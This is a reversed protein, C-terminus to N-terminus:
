VQLWVGTIKGLIPVGLLRSNLLLVNSDQSESAAEADWCIKPSIGSNKKLQVALSYVNEDLIIMRTTEGNSVRRANFVASKLIMGTTTGPVREYQASYGSEEAAEVVAQCQTQSCNQSLVVVSKFNQGVQQNTKEEESRILIIGKDRALEAALPTIITKPSVQIRRTGDNEANDLDAACLVKKQFWSDDSNQQCCGGDVSKCQCQKTSESTSYEQAAPDIARVVETTILRILNELESHKM